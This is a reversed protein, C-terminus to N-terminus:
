SRCGCLRAAWGAAAAVTNAHKREQGSRRCSNPWTAPERTISKCSTSAARSKKSATRSSRGIIEEEDFVVTEKISRVGHRLDEGITLVQRIVIPSRSLAKLTRLQGREIRKAIDVEWGRTLLPVAGM